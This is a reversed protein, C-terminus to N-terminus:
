SLYTMPKLTEIELGYAFIYIRCVEYRIKDEVPNECQNFSYYSTIIYLLEKVIQSM